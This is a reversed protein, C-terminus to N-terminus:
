VHHRVVLGIRPHEHVLSWVSKLSLIQGFFAGNPFLFHGHSLALKRKLVLM